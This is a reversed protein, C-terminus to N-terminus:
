MWKEVKSRLEIISAMHVLFDPDPIAIATTVAEYLRKKIEPNLEDGALVATINGLCILRRFAAKHTTGKESDLDAVDHHLCADKISEPLQWHDCLLGGFYSSAPMHFVIEAEEFLCNRSEAYQSMTKYHTPYYKLYVLKGIDHLISASWLENRSVMPEFHSALYRACMATYISHLWIKNFEAKDEGALTAMVAVSLTVRYIENIGIYAVALRVDSIPNPLGYYASNVIKLVQAVLAPDSAILEGVKRLSIKDSQLVSQIEFVIAPLAPLVDRRELFNKPDIDIPTLAKLAATSSNQENMM